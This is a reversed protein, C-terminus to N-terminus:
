TTGVTDTIWNKLIGLIEDAREKKEFPLSLNIYFKIKPETGSPRMSIRHGGELYFQLVNSAPLGEIPESRNESPIYRTGELIDDIREVTIGEIDTPPSQRLSAMIDDIRKAGDQGPLTLSYLDDLHYGYKRYIEDLLTDLTCGEQMLSHAMLAFYLAASVGDKDRVFSVPLYGYSEETGLIFQEQDFRNMENCIWKFGTLVERTEISFSDAIKRQLPSTVITHIFIGSKRYGRSLLFYLLLAGAENGNLLTFAGESNRYGVGVRDADPDNALLLHAKQTAAEELALTLAEREEPNPYKVTPFEGDPEAQSPVSFVHTFGADSLVQPVSRYGTGHLPTYVIRLPSNEAKLPITDMLLQRYENFLTDDEYIIKGEAKLSEHTGPEPTELTDVADVEAIIESDQPPVIQAGDDWYVKYGNYQPPNHSATIVIGAIAQRKRIAFSALPTPTIDTFLYVPIGKSALLTACQEAFLKSNRRSDRAIVVGQSAGGKKIIYNALGQTAKGITYINMRNTGAGMVGRMGGTGFALDRYFRDSLESEDGAEQLAKIEERTERDFPASTWEKIAREIDRM